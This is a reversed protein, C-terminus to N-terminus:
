DDAPCSLPFSLALLLLPFPPFLLLLLPFLLSLPLLPLLPPFSLDLFYIKKFINYEYVSSLFCLRSYKTALVSAIGIASINSYSNGWSLMLPLKFRQSHSHGLLSPLDMKKTVLSSPLHVLQEMDQQM